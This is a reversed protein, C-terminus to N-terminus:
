PRTTERASITTGTSLASYSPPAAEAMMQIHLVIVAELCDKADPM